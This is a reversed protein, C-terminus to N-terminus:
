HQNLWEWFASVDESHLSVNEGTDDCRIGVIPGRIGGVNEALAPDNQDFPYVVALEDLGNAHSRIGFFEMDGGILDFLPRYGRKILITAPVRQADFLVVSVNEADHPRRPSERTPRLKAMNQRM